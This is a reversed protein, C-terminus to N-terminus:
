CNESEGVSGEIGTLDKSVNFRYNQTSVRTTIEKRGSLFVCYLGYQGSLWMGSSRHTFPPSLHGPVLLRPCSSESAAVQCLSHRLGAM